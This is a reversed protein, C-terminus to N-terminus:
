SNSWPVQRSNFIESPEENQSLLMDMAGTPHDTLGGHLPELPDRRGVVPARRRRPAPAVGASVRDQPGRPSLILLGTYLCVLLYFIQCAKPWLGLSYYAHKICQILMKAYM